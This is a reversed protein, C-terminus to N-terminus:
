RWKRNPDIGGRSKRTTAVDASRDSLWRGLETTLGAGCAAGGRVPTRLPADVAFATEEPGLMPSSSGVPVALFRWHERYRFAERLEPDIAERERKNVAEDARTAAREAEEKQAKELAKAAKKATEKAEAAAEEAETESRSNGTARAALEHEEMLMPM